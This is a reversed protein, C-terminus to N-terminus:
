LMFESLVLLPAWILVLTLLVSAEPTGHTGFESAGTDKLVKVEEYQEPNLIGIM